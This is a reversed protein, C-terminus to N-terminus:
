PARLLIRRQMLIDRTRTYHENHALDGYPNHRLFKYFDHLLFFDLLLALLDHSENQTVKVTIKALPATGRKIYGSRLFYKTVQESSKYKCDVLLFALTRAVDFLPHGVATKEFDLIGSVQPLGNDHTGDFVINGRVFDMHLVHRGSLNKCTTLLRDYSYLSDEPLCVALTDAMARTVGRDAFYTTMRAITASYVSEVDPLNAAPCAALLGHLHSLTAGLTTIHGRTYAEWPITLGPLYDYLRACRTTTGSRIRLIRPDLTHRAPLGREAVFNSVRDARRVTQAIGPEQKYLMLNVLQGDVLLVPISINRYGKAAPLLRAAQLGYMRLIREVLQSDGSSLM